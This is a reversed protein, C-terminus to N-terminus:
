RSSIGFHKADQHLHPGTRRQLLAKIPYAASMSAYEAGTSPNSHNCHVLGLQAARIAAIGAPVPGRRVSSTMTLDRGRGM